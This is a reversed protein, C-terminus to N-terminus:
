GTYRDVQIGTYRYVQIGTHRYVQKSYALIHCTVRAQTYERLRPGGLTGRFFVDFKM